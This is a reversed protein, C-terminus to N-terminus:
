EATAGPLQNAFDGLAHMTLENFRVIAQDGNYATWRAVLNWRLLYIVVAEFDFSHRTSLANLKNWVAEMLTKELTFYDKKNLCEVATPIWPFANQLGLTPNAWNRRIYAYRSGYSWRATTPAQLGRAKRRLAAAITRMDLRWVVLEKLDPSTIEQLLRESLNILYEEKVDDLHSWHVLQEVKVLMEREAPPLMSLRRDLQLRSIPTIKSNFLSDIHPLSTLLTYYTNEAM